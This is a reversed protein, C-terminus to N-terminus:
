VEVTKHYSPPKALGAMVAQEEEHADWVVYHNGSKGNEFSEMM